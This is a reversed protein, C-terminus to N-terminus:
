RRHAAEPTFEQLTQKVRAPNDVGLAIRDGTLVYSAIVNVEQEAIGRLVKALYGPKDEAPFVLVDSETVSFGASELAKRAGKPDATVCHFKGDTESFGEINIQANAIAVVAKAFEGPRNQKLAIAIDQMTAIENQDKM